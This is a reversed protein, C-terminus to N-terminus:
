SEDDSQCPTLNHIKFSVKFGNEPQSEYYVESNLVERVLNHVISLGLGANGAGRRTTFFPDFVKPLLEESVGM